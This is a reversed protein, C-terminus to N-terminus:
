VLVFRKFLLKIISIITEILFIVWFRERKLLLINTMKLKIINLASNIYKKGVKTRISLNYFYIGQCEKKGELCFLDELIDM